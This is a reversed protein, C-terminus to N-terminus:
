VGSSGASFMIVAVVALAVAIKHYMNIPEGLWWGGVMMTTTVISIVAYLLYQSVGYTSYLLNFGLYTLFLGFGSLALAKWNGKMTGGPDFAGVLPAFFFSLLFAILASIAVFLLGNKVGAGKKQGLAFMANGMAAITSFLIPLLIKM